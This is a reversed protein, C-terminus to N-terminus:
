GGEWVRRGISMASIGVEGAEWLVGVAAEVAVVQKDEVAANEPNQVRGVLIVYKVVSSVVM